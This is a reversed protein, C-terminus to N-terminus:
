TPLTPHETHSDEMTAADLVRFLASLFALWELAEDKSLKNEHHHARPNRIADMVGAFLDMFGHQNGFRPDVMIVPKKPSFVTRMLSTGAENIGSKAQVARDLEICMSCHRIM